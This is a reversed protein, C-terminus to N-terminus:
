KPRSIWMTWPDGSVDATDDAGFIVPAVVFDPFVRTEQAPPYSSLPPIQPFPPLRSRILIAFNNIETFPIEEPDAYVPPAQNRGPLRWKEAMPRPFPPGQLILASLPPLGNMTHHPPSM